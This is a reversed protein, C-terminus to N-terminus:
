ITPKRKMLSVPGLIMSLPTKLDHSITSLFSLKREVNELASQREQEQLIRHNKKRMYWVIWYIIVIAISIYAMIAWWSLAWPSKVTLPVAIPTMPSGVAKVLVITDGM